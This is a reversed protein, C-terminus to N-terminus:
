KELGAVAITLGAFEKPMMSPPEIERYAALESDRDLPADLPRDDLSVM